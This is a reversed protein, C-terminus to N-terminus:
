GNPLKRILQPTNDIPPKLDNLIGTPMSKPWRNVFDMDLNHNDPFPMQNKQAVELFAPPAGYMGPDPPMAMDDGTSQPNLVGDSAQPGKLAAILLNLDPTMAM